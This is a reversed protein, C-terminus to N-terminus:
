RDTACLRVVADPNSICSSCNHRRHLMEQGLASVRSYASQPSPPLLTHFFLINLV